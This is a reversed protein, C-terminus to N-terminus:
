QLVTEQNSPIVAVELYCMSVIDHAGGAHVEGDRSLLGMMNISVSERAVSLSTVDTEIRCYHFRAGM